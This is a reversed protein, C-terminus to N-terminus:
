NTYKDCIFLYKDTSMSVFIISRVWKEFFSCVSEPNASIRSVKNVPYQNCRCNVTCTTMASTKTIRTAGTSIKGNVKRQSLIETRRPFTIDFTIKTTTNKVNTQGTANIRLAIPLSVRLNFFNLFSEFETKTTRLWL